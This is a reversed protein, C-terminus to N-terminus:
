NMRHGVLDYYPVWRGAANLQEWKSIMTQGDKSLRVVGRESSGLFCIEGPTIQVQYIRFYGVNSISYSLYAGNTADYGIWGIGTLRNEDTGRDFRHVLFYDGPLWEYSEIGGEVRWEGVFSQLYKHSPGKTPAKTNWRAITRVLEQQM